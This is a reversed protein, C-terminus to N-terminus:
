FYLARRRCAEQCGRLQVLQFKIWVIGLAPVKDIISNTDIIIDNVDVHYVIRKPLKLNLPFSSAIWHAEEIHFHLTDLSLSFANVQIRM